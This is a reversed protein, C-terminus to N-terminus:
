PFLAVSAATTVSIATMPVVGYMASCSFATVVLKSTISLAPGSASDPNGLM